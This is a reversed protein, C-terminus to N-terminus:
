VNELILTQTYKGSTPNFITQLGFIRRRENVMGARNDTLDIVDYVQQGCNPHIEIYGGAAEM